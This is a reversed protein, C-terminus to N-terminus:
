PSEFAVRVHLTSKGNFIVWLESSGSNILTAPFASLFNSLTHRQGRVVGFNWIVPSLMNPPKKIFQEILQGVGDATFNSLAQGLNLSQPFYPLRSNIVSSWLLLTADTLCSFKTKRNEQVSFAALQSNYRFFDDGVTREDEWECDSMTLNRVQWRGVFRAFEEYGIELRCGILQLRSLQNAISRQLMHCNLRTFTLNEVSLHETVRIHRLASDLQKPTLAIAVSDLSTHRESAITIKNAKNFPLRILGLSELTTKAFSDHHRQVINNLRRNVLRVTCLSNVDLLKLILILVHDPVDEFDEVNIARKLKKGQGINSFIAARSVAQLSDYNNSEVPESNKLARKLNRLHFSKFIM